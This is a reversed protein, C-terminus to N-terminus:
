LSGYVHISNYDDDTVLIHQELKKWRIEVDYLPANGCSTCNIEGVGEPLTAAINARWEIIDRTRISHPDNLTTTDTESAIQYAGTKAITQNARMREFMGDAFLTAQSRYYANQNIHFSSIQLQALGLLGIALVFLAILVELLSFGKSNLKAVSM